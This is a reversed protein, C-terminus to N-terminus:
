RCGGCDHRFRRPTGTQWTTKAVHKADIKADAPQRTPRRCVGPNGGFIIACAKGVAGRHSFRLGAIVPWSSVTEREQPFVLDPMRIM